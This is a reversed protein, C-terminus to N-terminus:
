IANGYAQEEVEMEELQQKIYNKLKEYIPFRSRNPNPSPKDGTRQGGEAGYRNQDTYWDMEDQDDDFTIRQAQRPNQGGKVPARGGAGTGYEQILSKIINRIKQSM